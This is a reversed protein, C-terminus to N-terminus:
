ALKEAIRLCASRARPNMEIEAASPKIMKGIRRLRRHIDKEKIPLHSPYAEGQSQSRIFRKVLRDELSHFSIICMRGQLSMVDVCQELINKLEDLEKNIFIRIAQFARTAPHIRTERTPSVQKICNALQTTTEFPTIERAECIGGAIRWAHREEGYERLVQAIDERSASNIWSAADMGQQPNMRMDLPGERTFSFGREAKDLQPSSVGLDMLIGNVDGEWGLAQVAQQLHDFSAHVITVRKEQAFKQKAMHIAEPDKDMVLLRGQEGLQQLIKESHGGRGFTADVYKGDPRLALGALVEQLLVPVHETKM